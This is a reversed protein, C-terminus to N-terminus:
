IQKKAKLEEFLIWFRNIVEASLRFKTSTIELMIERLEKETIIKSKFSLLLVKLSGHPQIGNIIAIERAIKEDMLLTKQNEQMALAITEAEGRDIQSYIKEFFLAKKKWEPALKKQEILGKEAFEKILFSEPANIKGGQEVVEFFVAPAIEIKKYVKFRLDLKGIKGFVILPSSNSIM